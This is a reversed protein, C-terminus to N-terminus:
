ENMAQKVVKRMCDIMKGIRHRLGLVPRSVFRSNFSLFSAKIAFMITNVAKELCSTHWNDTGGGWNQYSKLTKQGSKEERRVSVTKTRGKKREGYVM